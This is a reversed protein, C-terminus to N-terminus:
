FPIDAESIEIETGFDDDNRQTKKDGSGIFEVREAIVETVYRKKGDDGDYSRVQLKGEIAVQRGKSLYKASNEGIKGWVVINIFDASQEGEKTFARNVALTFTCVATGNQTYRLEPDKTLRGILIVKNM